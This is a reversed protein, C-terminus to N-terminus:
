LADRAYGEGRYDMKQSQRARYHTGDFASHDEEHVLTEVDMGYVDQASLYYQKDEHLIVARHTPEKFNRHTLCISLQYKLRVM